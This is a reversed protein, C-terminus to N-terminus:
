LLNTALYGRVALKAAEVFLADTPPIIAVGKSAELPIQDHRYMTYHGDGDSPNWGYYPRPLEDDGAYAFSMVTAVERHEKQRLNTIVWWALGWEVCDFHDPSNPRAAEIGAVWINGVPALQNSSRRTGPILVVDGVEFTNHVPPREFCKQMQAVTDFRAGCIPCSFKTKPVTGPLGVSMWARLNWSRKLDADCEKIFDGVTM